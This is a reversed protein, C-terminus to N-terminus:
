HQLLDERLAGVLSAIERLRWLDEDGHVALVKKAMAELRPLEERHPEHFTTVIHRIVEVLPVLDWGPTARDSTALVAEIESAVSAPDLGRERCVQDLARGGGCCFDIGHRAFVRTSLPHEAALRGILTSPAITVSM